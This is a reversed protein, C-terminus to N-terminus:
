FNYYIFPNYGTASTNAVAILMLAFIAVGCAVEWVGDPIRLWRKICRGLPLSCAVAAIIYWLYEKFVFWTLRDAFAAGGFGFMTKIYGFAASISVSRILVTIVTVAVMAYLHGVKHKEM